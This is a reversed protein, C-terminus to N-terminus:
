MENLELLRYTNCNKTRHEIAEKKHPELYKRDFLADPLFMQTANTQIDHTFINKLLIYSINKDKYLASIVPHHGAM